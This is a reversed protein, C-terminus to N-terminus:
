IPEEYLRNEPKPRMPGTPGYILSQAQGYRSMQMRPQEQKQRGYFDPDLWWSELPMHESIVYAM